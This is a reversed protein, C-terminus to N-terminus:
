RGTIARRGRLQRGDEYMDAQNVPFGSARLIELIIIRIPRGEEKARAAIADRTYPPIDIKFPVQVSPIEEPLLSPLDAAERFDAIAVDTSPVANLAKWDDTPAESATTAAAPKIIVGLDTSGLRPADPRKAM